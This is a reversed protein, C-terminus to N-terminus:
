PYRCLECGVTRKCTKAFIPRKWSGCHHGAGRELSPKGLSLFARTVTSGSESATACETSGRLTGYGFVASTSLLSLPVAWRIESVYLRKSPRITGTPLLSDADLFLYVDGQAEAAGRNLSQWKHGRLSEDSIVTASLQRAITVTADHSGADIVIVEPEALHARKYVATLTRKLYDAENLTPIIISLHM